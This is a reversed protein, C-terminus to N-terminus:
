ASKAEFVLKSRDPVSFREFVRSLDEANQVYAQSEGMEKTCLYWTKDSDSHYVNTEWTPSHGEFYAINSKDELPKELGVFLAKSKVALVPKKVIRGSSRDVVRKYDIVEKEGVVLAEFTGNIGSILKNFINPLNTVNDCTDQFHGMKQLQGDVATGVCSCSRVAKTFVDKGAKIGKMTWNTINCSQPLKSTLAEFTKPSVFMIRSLNNTVAM